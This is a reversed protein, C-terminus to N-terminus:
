EKDEGNDAKSPENKNESKSNTNLILPKFTSIATPMTATQPTERKTEMSKGTCETNTDAEKTETKVAEKAAQQKPKVEARNVLSDGKVVNRLRPIFNKGAQLIGGQMIDKVIGIPMTALRVPAAALQTAKNKKAGEQMVRQNRNSHVSMKLSEATSAGHKKANKFDSGGIMGGILGGIAAKGSKAVAIASRANYIMQSLERGGSQAGCLQSIVLNAKTVAFAGGILFLVYVVGNQFRNEFFTMQSIQPIILFFLNMVIIIGYAGLVKSILMDKWLKFRNGDDLPVTSISIPSIIYLLIIDFIRQIFTISSLAFMLLIVVGGLLGVLYNVNWLNYYKEVVSINNYNLEGSVFMKEIAERSSPEGIFADQGTTILMQGGITTNGSTIYQQMSTNISGMIVNTLTIGALLLFPILLFILFSQGSKILIGARTKKDNNQYNARILAIICFVTLLIVGILFIALFVRKITDSLILNSVLDVDNGGYQVTDLGCLKYFVDKIFDILYCLGAQLKYLLSFFWDQLAQLVM